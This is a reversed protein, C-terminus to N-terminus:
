GTDVWLCPGIRTALKMSGIEHLDILMAGGAGGTVPGSPGVTPSASHKSTTTHSSEQASAGPGVPSTVGTAGQVSFVDLLSAPVLWGLRCDMGIIHYGPPSPLAHM